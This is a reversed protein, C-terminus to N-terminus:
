KYYYSPTWSTLCETIKSSKLSTILKCTKEIKYGITKDVEKRFQNIVFKFEMEYLSNRLAEGKLANYRSVTKIIDDAKIVADRANGSIENIISNFVKQKLSNQLKRLYVANIFRFTNEISTPEPICVFLGTNSSLFFDITNFNTGAGLDLLVYDHPLKYIANILKQKQAAFLNSIGM